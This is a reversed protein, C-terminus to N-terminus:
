KYATHYFFLRVNEHIYHLSYDKFYRAKIKHCIASIETIYQVLFSRTAVVRVVNQRRRHGVVSCVCSLM